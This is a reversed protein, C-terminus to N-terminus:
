NINPSEREQFYFNLTGEKCICFNLTFRVQFYCFYWIDTEHKKISIFDMDLSKHHKTIFVTANEFMMKTFVKEFDISLMNKLFPIM